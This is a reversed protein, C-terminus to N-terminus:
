DESCKEIVYIGETIKGLRRARFIQTGFVVVSAQLRPRKGSELGPHGATVRHRRLVENPCRIIVEFKVPTFQVGSRGGRGILM